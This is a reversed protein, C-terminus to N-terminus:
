PAPPTSLRQKEQQTYNQIDTSTQRLHAESFLYALLSEAGCNLNPGNAHLGDRCAGHEADILSLHHTNKGYLWLYPAAITPLPLPEVEYHYDLLFDFTTSAEIPQQNDRSPQGGKPYWGDSGIPIFMDNEMTTKLLFATSTKLIDRLSQDVRLRLLALIAHPLLANAYTLKDEFWPWDPTSHAKWAKTLAQLNRQLLPAIHLEAQLATPLESIALTTEAVARLATFAEARKLLAPLLARAQTQRDTRQADRTLTTTCARILRADTDESYPYSLWRGDASRFNQHGAPAKEAELIFQWARDIAIDAKTQGQPTLSPHLYLLATIARSNDDSCYGESLLPERLTAHQYLGHPGLMTHLHLFLPDPPLPAQTM